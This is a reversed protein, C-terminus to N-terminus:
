LRPESRLGLSAEAISHCVAVGQLVPPLVLQHHYGVNRSRQRVLRLQSSSQTEAPNRRVPFITENHLEKSHNAADRRATQEAVVRGFSHDVSPLRREKQFADWFFFAKNAVPGL